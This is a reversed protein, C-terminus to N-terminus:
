QRLLAGYGGTPERHFPKPIPETKVPLTALKAKINDPTVLKDATYVSTALAEPETYVVPSNDPKTYVPKRPLTCVSDDNTHVDKGTLYETLSVGLQKAAAQLALKKAATVRLIIRKDKRM